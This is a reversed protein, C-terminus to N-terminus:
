SFVFKLCKNTADYQQTCGNNKLSYTTPNYTLVTNYGNGSTKPTTNPSFAIPYANPTTVSDWEVTYTHTNTDTPTEWTGDERLFRTKSNSNYDPKPVVGIYGGTNEATDKKFVSLNKTFTVYDTTTIKKNEDTIVPVSETYLLGDNSINGHSHSKPTRTDTLRSDNNLVILQNNAYVDGGDHNLYLAATTTGNSKAMIENADFELHTSTAAGGVILAPSNNATGSADTSKNLILTGTVTGGSLKLYTSDHGHGSSAAGVSAYNVSVEASGDYTTNNGSFTLKNKVKDAVVSMAVMKTSSVLGTQFNIKWGSKWGTYDQSNWNVMVDRVQAAPDNISMKSMDIQVVAQNNSNKAFYCNLTSWDSANGIPQAGYNNWGTTNTNNFYGYIHYTITNITIYNYFDVYFSVMFDNPGSPLTITLYYTSSDSPTYKVTSNCRFGGDSPFAIYGNCGAGTAWDANAATSHIKDPLPIETWLYPWNDSTQSTGSWKSNAEARELWLVTKGNLTKTWPTGTHAGTTTTIGYGHFAANSILGNKDIGHIYSDRLNM